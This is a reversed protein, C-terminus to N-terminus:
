EMTSHNALVHPGRYEGLISSVFVVCLLAFCFLYASLWFILLKESQVSAGVTSLFYQEQLLGSNLEWCRKSCGVAVHLVQRQIRYTGANM